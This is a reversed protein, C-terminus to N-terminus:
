EEIIVFSSYPSILQCNVAFVAFGKILVTSNEHTVFLFMLINTENYVWWYCKPTEATEEEGQSQSGATSADTDMPELSLFISLGWVLLLRALIYAFLQVETKKLNFSTFTCAFIIIYASFAYFM